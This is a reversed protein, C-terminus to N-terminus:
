RKGKHLACRKAGPLPRRRCSGGSATRAGCVPKSELAGSRRIVAADVGLYAEVVLPDNVVAEPTGRAILRGTEMAILEDSVATVLPMDHEIILMTCGIQQRIKPLLATLVETERQAIGSSPEDLLLVDPRHALTAALDVIRRTGTSLEGIFKNRFPKLGMLRILEDVSARIGREVRAARGIRVAALVPGVKAFHRELAVALTERVTLSPFLRGDQFSRGIGKRARATPSLHTIDNGSLRVTGSSDVFGCLADLITTKGAGNPGIIGVIAGASVSFSVGDVAKVGGFNVALDDVTLVETM